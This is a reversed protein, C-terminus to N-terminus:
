VMYHLDIALIFYQGILTKVELHVVGMLLLTMM